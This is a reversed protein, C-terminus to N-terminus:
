QFVNCKFVVAGGGLQHTLGVVRRRHGKDVAIATLLVDVVALPDLTHQHVDAVAQAVLGFVGIQDKEVGAGDAFVGLLTHEAVHTRQLTELLFLGTQHDAQAAAHGVLLVDHFLQALAVGIHIQDETHVADVRQGLEDRLLQLPVLANQHLRCLTRDDDLVDGDAPLALEPCPQRDHVAAVVEAGVADHRIDAAALFAALGAVDERLEPPQHLGPVLLDGQQPLVDVAIALTECLRHIEGVQEIQEARHRAVVVDAEHGAVRLVGAVLQDVGDRRLGLDASVQVKRHLAARIPQELLHVSVVGDLVVHLQDLVGALGHGADGERAIDDDAEGTLRLFIELLRQIQDLLDAIHLQKGEDVGLAGARFGCLHGVRGGALFLGVPHAAQELHLVLDGHVKDLRM